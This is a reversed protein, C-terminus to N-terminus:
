ETHSLKTDYTLHQDTASRSCPKLPNTATINQCGQIGAGDAAQVTLVSLMVIYRKLLAIYCRM